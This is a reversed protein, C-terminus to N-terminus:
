KAPYGGEDGDMPIRRSPSSTYMICRESMSVLSGRVIASLSACAKLWNQEFDVTRYSSLAGPGARRADPDASAPSVSEACATSQASMQDRVGEGLAMGLNRYRRM